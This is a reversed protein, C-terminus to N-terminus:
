LSLPDIQGLSKMVGAMDAILEMSAFKLFSEIDLIPDKTYDNLHFPASVVYSLATLQYMTMGRKLSKKRIFANREKANTMADLQELDEDTLIYSYISNVLATSRLVDPSEMVINGQETEIIKQPHTQVM